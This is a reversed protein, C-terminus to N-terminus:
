RHQKWYERIVDKWKDGSKLYLATNILMKDEPTSQPRTELSRIILDYFTKRFAAGERDALRSIDDLIKEPTVEQQLPIAATTVPAATAPPAQVPPAPPTQATVPPQEQQMPAAPAPAPVPTEIKTSLPDPAVLTAAQQKLFADLDKLTNKKKSM